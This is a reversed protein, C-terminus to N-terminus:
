ILLRRTTQIQGDTTHSQTELEQGFKKWYEYASELMKWTVKTQPHDLQASISDKILDKNKCHNVRGYIVAGSARLAIYIEQAESKETQSKAHTHNRVAALVPSLYETESLLTERAVTNANANARLLLQLMDLNNNSAAVYVPSLNQLKKALPMLGNTRNQEFNPSVGSDLAQTVTAIDNSKVANLFARQSITKGM